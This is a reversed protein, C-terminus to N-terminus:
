NAEDDDEDDEDDDEDEVQVIGGFIYLSSDGGSAVPDEIDILEDMDESEVLGPFDIGFDNDSEQETNEVPQVAAVAAEVVAPNNISVVAPQQEPLDPSPTEPEPEPESPTSCEGSTILCDNFESDSTYFTSSASSADNNFNVEQYFAEGTVLNGSSDLRAGYAFVDISSEINGGSISLGGDGVLIGGQEGSTGTNRVLLQSGVDISVSGGRIYGLPDESGSAAVSLLDNRDTSLSGDQLLAILDSDAAWITDAGLFLNGSPNGATDVVGIGGPTVIEIRGGPAIVSFEDTAAADSYVVQGEVRILGGSSTEVTISSAGDDLTGFATIDRMIIDPANPNGSEGTFLTNQFFRFSDVELRGAEEQSLEYGEDDNTNVPGNSGGIIAPDERNSSTLQLTAAGVRAGDNIEIDNSVLRVSLGGFGIFNDDDGFISITRGSVIDINATPDLVSPGGIISGQGTEIDFDDNVNVNLAGSVLLDGGTASISSAGLASTGPTGIATTNLTEVALQGSLVGVQFRGAFNSDGGSGDADIEVLAAALDPNSQAGGISLDILGGQGIGGASSIGSAGIDLNQLSFTSNGEIAIAVQGGTAEGGTAGSTADGAAAIADASVSLEDAILDTDALTFNLGGGTADGANGIGSREGGTFDFVAGSDALNEVVLRGAQTDSAAISVSSQAISVNVDGAVANGREAGGGGFTGLRISNFNGPVPDGPESVNTDPNFVFTPIDNQTALQLDSGSIAVSISGGTADGGQGTESFGGSLVNEILLTGGTISSDTISVDIAGGTANGGQTTGTGANSFQSIRLLEDNPVTITSNDIVVLMDGAQVDGGVQGRGGNADSTPILTTDTLEVTSDIIRVTNNGGTADGGNGTGSGSGSEFGVPQFAGTFSSGNVIEILADGNVWSGGNINADTDLSSGGSSDTGIGLNGTLTAADVLVQVLGGQATGGTGGEVSSGGGRAYIAYLPGTAFISGVTPLTLSAGNTSAISITGGIADGGLGSGGSTEGGIATAAFTPTLGNILDDNSPDAAGFPLDNLINLVTGDGEAIIDITGGIGTGGMAGEGAGGRGIAILEAVNLTIDGGAQSQVFARGAAGTGGTFGASADGGTGNAIVTAIGNVTGSGSIATFVALDAIGGTGDAGDGDGSSGGFGSADVTVDGSVTTTGGQYGMFAQGGTGVGGIGELGNGGIGQSRGEFSALNVIAGDSTFIGSREGGTGTGGNAGEGGTGNATTGTAGSTLTGGQSGILARFGLGNGGNGRPDGTSGGFGGSGGEGESSVVLSGFSATGNGITPAPALFSRIGASARGATGDGGNGGAQGLGGSGGEGGGGDSFVNASGAISLVGNDSGAFIYAGATLDTSEGGVGDGGNGAAITSGDGTGGNGGFGSATAGAGGGILFTGTSNASGVAAILALGGQGLGGDGGPGSSDGGFGNANAVVTGGVDILGDFVEATSIGGLADGGGQGAGGFAFSRLNLDDTVTLAGGADVSVQTTGGTALGGIGSANNTGGVGTAELLLESGVEITGLGNLTVASLGGSGSAGSQATTSAGGTGTTRLILSGGTSLSTPTNSLDVSAEGGVADGGPGLTSSGGLAGADFLANATLQIAAQGASIGADGGTANGGLNDGFGGRGIAFGAINTATLDTSFEAFVGATGGTGDGGVHGEGGTGDANINVNGASTTGARSTLFAGGGLGGGGNGRLAGTGGRFGGDGGDGNAFLTVDGFDVAGAGVSGDFGLLASGAQATGGTGNGGDGGNQGTGGDGGVGGIGFSTVTLPGAISLNGNDGGALVYAGNSFDPDAQNSDQIIGGIGDGGRGALITDGDGDGGQGGRGDSSVDAQGTITVSAVNQLDGTAQIYSLGGVGTGGNGGFGFFAGGGTGEASIGVDGNITFDGIGTVIGSSGGFGDGGSVGNGGIGNANTTVDNETTLLGQDGSFVNAIGGFGDGGTGARNLGGRGQATIRSLDAITITGSGDVVINAVGGDGITGIDTNNSDGGTASANVIARDGLNVAGSSTASISAFGGFANGGTSTQNSSGDTGTAFANVFANAGVNVTGGDRAALSANGGQIDGASLIDSGLAGRGEADARAIDGINLTGGIAQIIANGGIASAAIGTIMDFGAEANAFALASEGITMIAGDVAEIVATGGQGDGESPADLAGILGYGIADATTRGAIDFTQGNEAAIRALNRAYAYLNGDVSSAGSSALIQVQDNAVALLTSTSAFNDGIISGSVDTLEANEDFRRFSLSVNGGNVDRGNVNYNASLIIEGNVIGAQTAPDFGLNGSFLLSIPDTQAAAVAYILHNDDTVGTSSPGGVDGDIQIPVPSSSGVPIQIDFLGNTVTVNVQEGGIFATSGNISSSGFIQIEAAVVALYSNEATATVQSGPAFIIQATTGTQGALQLQGGNLAFDDFSALDPDLTTLILNGVDFVANGGVFIGTPSYFAVTGGVSQSGTQLDVLRSIVTGDFVAVNGNTAPLIRNLIAFDAVASGNQFTVENGTPLYDLANGAQDEIPIWDVVATPTEVFITEFGSTQIDRTISGSVVSENAQIAQASGGQPM